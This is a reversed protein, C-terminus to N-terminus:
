VVAKEGKYAKARKMMWGYLLLILAAFRPWASM